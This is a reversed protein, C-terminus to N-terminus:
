PEEWYYDLVTVKSDGSFYILQRIPFTV